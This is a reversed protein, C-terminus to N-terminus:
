RLYDLQIRQQLRRAVRLSEKLVRRDIDNLAPVDVLNPNGDPADVAERSDRELQVQLRLLQLVEFGAIWAESEQAPVGMAQAAAAFRERTSTAAVGHAMAYLRAADVYIATGHLKLDVVQQGGQSQTDIGGAWTLAPTNRLANEGMQKMFRANRAAERVITDKLTSALGTAGALPRLDFYISANLLDEPAGHDIWDSFRQLWERETLCCDPNSAMVNGKCLPYGCVDLAENVERAFALLAPRDAAPDDSAFVIGNDQDTAITQESRGESGFALWCVRSLDVGHQAALLAVLREALVDNLHSILETLQRARVGQGLLSRAFRRIDAAVLRLTDVDPAARIATSVQKLSLRQLAFLDRESLIGVVRAGPDDADTVPVHRVGHRSMLLAADQATHRTSLVQVPASMVDGIPRQLSLGPLTVRGLIDHRTLIGRAAGSTEDLVLVSGIRRDHMAHLAEALPTAAGVGYAARRVLQGLPTELTQEALSQQAYAVQVARRSLELFQQVRRNLFDAFPACDQAIQQMAELPLMLCFTDDNATYTATVARAAMAAGVPFLDGAEYEFGGGTDALGSRGSIRGRRVFLLHTVPGSAPSLVAEGPEYYAQASAAVFRDVQAAPMQAFPAHRQLEARLNAVLNPSPSANMPELM